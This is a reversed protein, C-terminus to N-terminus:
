EACSIVVTEAFRGGLGESGPEPETATLVQESMLMTEPLGVPPQIYFSCSKPAQDLTVPAEKELDMGIYISPDFLRIRLTEGAMPLATKLPLTFDYVLRDGDMRAQYKTPKALPIREGKHRFDVFYFWEELNEMGTDILTQLEDPSAVGDGNKDYGAVSTQSYLEDLRWVVRLATLAGADNFQLVVRDDIWVHPHAMAPRGQLLLLTLCLSFLSLRPLCAQFFRSRYGM